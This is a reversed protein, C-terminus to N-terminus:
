FSSEGRHVVNTRENLIWRYVRTGAGVLPLCLCDIATDKHRLRNNFVSRETPAVKGHGTGINLILKVKPLVCRRFTCTFSVLQVPVRLLPAHSSFTDTRCVFLKHLAHPGSEQVCKTDDAFIAQRPAIQTSRRFFLVPFSLYCGSKRLYVVM